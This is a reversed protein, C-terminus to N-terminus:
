DRTIRATTVKGDEWKMYHLFYGGRLRIGRLEGSHFAKPLAPLLRINGGHSQVLCETIGAGGGFNGDIQFPPHMDFLNQSTSNQLLKAINDYVAEGDGLRAFMNILWARSWGTHGGGGELRRNLTVKAAATLDPTNNYDGPPDIQEGPYLAFLHSIHRHGPEPELYDEAWEMLQGFQGVTPKPLLVRLKAIEALEGTNDEIGLIEASKAVATFLAYLIQSDMSPAECLTAVKGDKTYYSNEPSVSPCTVMEGRENVTLFDIFFRAAEFMIYFHERLFDTNQCYEFHEWIHLSLWALGMVWITGPMWYDQPACDGWLDTNHHCVAGRAGYMERAVERGHETMRKLHEFLPTVCEPLNQAEAAWYNMETNINVTFKCGWPPPEDANWIGQLNLPLSGPYSGSIMLYKSYDWYTTILGNDNGTERFRALREDTPIYSLDEGCLTLASRSMMQKLTSDTEFRRTIASRCLNKATYDYDSFRYSTAIALTIVAETGTIALKGGDVAVTGDSVASVAIAYPVGGPISYLLTNDATDMVTKDIYAHINLHPSSLRIYMAQRTFSCSVERRIHEGNVSFSTTVVGSYLDLEHRYDTYGSDGMESLDGSLGNVKSDESLGNTGLDESRGCVSLDGSDGSVGLEGGVATIRLNGAPRYYPQDGVPFFATKVLEEAKESEGARILERLRELNEYASPNVRNRFTGSWISDENLAITEDWVGGFVM